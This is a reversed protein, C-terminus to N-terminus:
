SQSCTCVGIRTISSGAKVIAFKHGSELISNAMEIASQDILTKLLQNNSMLKPENYIASMLDLM